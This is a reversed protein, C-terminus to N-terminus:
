ESLWQAIDCARWYRRGRSRGIPKPFREQRIWRWLTPASIPVISLVEKANVLRLSRLDGGDPAIHTTANM